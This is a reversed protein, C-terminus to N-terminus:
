RRLSDAIHKTNEATKVNAVILELGLRVFIVWLAPIIWGFIIALLLPWPSFSPAEGFYASASGAAAGTVIGGIISGLWSLAAVVIAIIYIFGAWRVAIFNDFRFDFLSKFFGGSGGAKQQAAPQQFNGVPAHQSGAYNGQGYAAYDAGQSHQGQQSPQEFQGYQNQPGYQGGQNYQGGQDYQNYQNQQGQMNPQAFQSQQDNYQEAQRYQEAQGFETGAASSDPGTEDSVPSVQNSDPDVQDNQINQNNEADSGSYPNQPTSM